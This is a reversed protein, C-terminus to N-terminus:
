EALLLNCGRSEANDFRGTVTFRGDEFIQGLDDTAIFPCSYINALDVINFAGKGKTQVDFPNEPTRALVRMWHPPSFIGNATSYAQSLLETMAYESYINKVGFAEKLRFHLEERSIEKRRGKMGGTEMLILSAYDFAYKDAFDLLAYSVGFVLTKKNEIKCQQLQAYLEEPNKLYFSSQQNATHQMLYDVMFILSSNQQQQYSPLLGLINWDSIKGFLKEFHQKISLCYLEKNYVYHTSRQMTTTGSSKFVIAESEQTNIKHNKFFQIPLFPIKELSDISQEAIGLFGLYKKYVVNHEAHYHFLALALDSFNGNKKNLIFQTVKDYINV